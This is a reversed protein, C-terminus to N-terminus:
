KKEANNRREQTAEQIAKEIIEVTPALSITDNFPLTICDLQAAKREIWASYMELDIEKKRYLEILKEWAAFDIGCAPIFHPNIYIGDYKFIAAYYAEDNYEKTYTILLNSLARIIDGSRTLPTELEEPNLGCLWDLSVDLVEAIRAATDLAPTKEGREYYALTSLSIGVSEALEKRQIQKATRAQILRASFKEKEM